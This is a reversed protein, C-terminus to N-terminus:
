NLSSSNSDDLPPKAIYKLKLAALGAKLRLSDGLGLKLSEIDVDCVLLLTDLDEIQNGRIKTSAAVTLQVESFWDEINFEEDLPGSM